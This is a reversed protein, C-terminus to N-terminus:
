ISRQKTLPKPFGYHIWDNQELMEVERSRALLSSQNTYETSRKIDLLKLIDVSHINEIQVLYMM